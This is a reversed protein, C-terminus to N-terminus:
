LKVDKLAERCVEVAEIVNEYTPDSLLSKAAKLKEKVEEPTNSRGNYDIIATQFCHIQCYHFKFTQRMLLASLNWIGVIEQIYLM